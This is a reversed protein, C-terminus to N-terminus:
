WLRRAIWQTAAFADEVGAPFPAEPALRYEVSVVIVGAEHALRRTVPDHGDVSGICFGGGHFYICIPFPGDGLPTYIRIPVGGADRDVVSALAADEGGIARLMQYAARAEDVTGDAISQNGGTAKMQGVMAQIMPDLQASM